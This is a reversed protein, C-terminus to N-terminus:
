TAEACRGSQGVSLPQPRDARRPRVANYPSLDGRIQNFMDRQVNTAANAANVQANNACQPPTLGSLRRAWALRLQSRGPGRRDSLPQHRGEARCPDRRLDRMILRRDVTFYTETPEFGCAVFLQEIPKHNKSGM